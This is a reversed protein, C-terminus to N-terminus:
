NNTNKNELSGLRYLKYSVSPSGMPVFQDSDQEVINIMSKQKKNENDIISELRRM